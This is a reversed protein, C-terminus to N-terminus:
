WAPPNYKHWCQPVFCVGSSTFYSITSTDKFMFLSSVPCKPAKNSCPHICTWFSVSALLFCASFAAFSLSSASITLLLLLCHLAIRIIIASTRRSLEKISSVCLIVYKIKNINSTLTKSFFMYDHRQGCPQISQMVSRSRFLYVDSLFRQLDFSKCRKKSNPIMRVTELFGEM